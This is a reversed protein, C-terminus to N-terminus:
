TAQIQFLSSESALAYEIRIGMESLEDQSFLCEVVSFFALPLWLIVILIYALM